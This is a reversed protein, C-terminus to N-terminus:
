TATARAVNTPWPTFPLIFRLGGLDRFTGTNINYLFTPVGPGVGDGAGQYNGVVYGANNVSLAVSSHHNGLAPDIDAMSTVNLTGGTLTYSWVAAENGLPTPSNSNVVFGVVQGHSNFDTTSSYYNTAPGTQPIGLDYMTGGSDLFAAASSAPLAASGVVQGLDNVANASNNGTNDGPLLLEQSTGNAGGSYLFGHFQGPWSAAAIQGAANIAQGSCMDTTGSGAWLLTGLDTVAGSTGGSYTFYFPHHDYAYGTVLTTGNVTNSIGLANGSGMTPDVANLDVFCAAGGVTALSPLLLAACAIALWGPPMMRAHWVVPAIRCVPTSPRLM